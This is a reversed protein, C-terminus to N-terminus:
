RQSKRTVHFQRCMALAFLNPWIRRTFPIIPNPLGARTVGSSNSLSSMEQHVAVAFNASHSMCHRRCGPMVDTFQNRSHVFPPGLDRVADDIRSRLCFLAICMSGGVFRNSITARRRRGPSRRRETTLAIRHTVDSNDSSMAAAQQRKGIVMEKGSPSSVGRFWQQWKELTM